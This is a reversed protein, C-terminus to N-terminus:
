WYTNAMFADTDPPRFRAPLDIWANTLYRDRWEAQRRWRKGAVGFLVQLNGGLHIGVKGLRKVAATLPLALGGAAILAIDFELRAIQEVIAEFLDLATPHVRWTEEAIAFPIDLAKVDRPHFWRLNPRAWVREFTEETAREKLFEAFPCIILITRGAFADLYCADGSGAAWKEPLLDKYHVVPNDLSYFDQLARDM